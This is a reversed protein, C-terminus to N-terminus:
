NGNFVAGATKSDYTAYDKKRPISQDIREDEFLKEWPKARKDSAM